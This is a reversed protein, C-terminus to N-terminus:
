KPVICPTVLLTNNYIKVIEVQKGEEVYGNKSKAEVITGNIKISGSPALRSVTTAKDGIQINKNKLMDLKDDLTKELSVGRWAVYRFGLVIAMTTIVLTSILASNGVLSSQDYAYFIGLILLVIGLIGAVSVGPFIFIELLLFVIGLFLILIIFALAM